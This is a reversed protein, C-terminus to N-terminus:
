TDARTYLTFMSTDADHAAAHAHAISLPTERSFLAYCLHMTYLLAANGDPDGDPGIYAHCGARLFADAFPPAGLSCGTNIVIRQPLRLFRAFDHASISAGFPQTAAIQPALPPLALGQDDGHCMLLVWPAITTTGDLLRVLQSATAVHHLAVRVGWYELVGRVALAALDDAINILELTPSDRM